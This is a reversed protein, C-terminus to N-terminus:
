YRSRITLKDHETGSYGVPITRMRSVAGGLISRAELRLMHRVETRGLFFTGSRRPPFALINRREEIFTANVGEEETTHVYKKSPVLINWGM